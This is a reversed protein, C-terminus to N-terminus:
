NSLWKSINNPVITSNTSSKMVGEKNRESCNEALYEYYPEGWLGIWFQFKQM